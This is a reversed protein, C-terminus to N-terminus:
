PVTPADSRCVKRILYIEPSISSTLPLTVDDTSPQILINVAPDKKQASNTLVRLPWVVRAHPERETWEGRGDTLNDQEVNAVIFEISVKIGLYGKM